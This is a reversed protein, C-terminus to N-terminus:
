QLEFGSGRSQKEWVNLDVRSSNEHSGFFFGSSSDKSPFSKPPALTTYGASCLVHM